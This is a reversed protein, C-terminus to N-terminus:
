SGAALQIEEVLVDYLREVPVKAVVQGKKFLIGVDGSGAVGVDAERAEGPGNVVCGMVAVTLKHKLPPLLRLYEEIKEALEILSFGTRGCTPCAILEPRFVGLGLTQLISQAIPIEEAPDGTLSVRITDGIGESLLAGIGISSKVLCSRLTGAETVGLHLPYDTLGAIQRYAELMVPVHSSKLSIKIDQFGEEELLHVHGMASEVLAEATPGMKELIDKELSGGNVGVRIPIRREAAARVVEQIKWKAGINGPNLRLGNVGNGVAALALRHDFHIDAVVPLPSLSCIGGLAEAAEANPVAVRVLECGADALAKIQKLTEQQDRTDTNTMSQIVVPAGAGVTLGGLVVARSVRRQAM